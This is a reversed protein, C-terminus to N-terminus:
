IAAREGSGIVQQITAILEDPRIPKIICRIGFKRAIDDAESHATTLVIGLKYSKSQLMFEDLSLGPMSYDMLVCAPVYGSKLAELADDRSAAVRCNFYSSLLVELMERTDADDEVIFLNSKRM